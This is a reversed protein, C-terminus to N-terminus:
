TTAGTADVAFKTIYGTWDTPLSENALQEIRNAFENYFSDLEGGWRGKLLLIADRCVSWQQKKYHDIMSQHLRVYHEMTSIEDLPVKDIICYSAIPTTMPKIVFTDLELVIHRQKLDSVLPSDFIINM